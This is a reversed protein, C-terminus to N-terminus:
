PQETPETPFALAPYKASCYRQYWEMEAQQNHQAYEAAQQDLEVTLDLNM